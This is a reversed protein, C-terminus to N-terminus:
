KKIKKDNEFKDHFNYNDMNRNCSDFCIAM